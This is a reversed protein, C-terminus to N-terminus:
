RRLNDLDQDSSELLKEAATLSILGDSVSRRIASKEASLMRMRAMRMQENASAPRSAEIEDSEREAANM